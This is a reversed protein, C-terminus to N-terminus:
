EAAECTALAGAVAAKIQSKTSENWMGTARYVEEGRCDLIVMTPFSSIGLPRLLKTGRCDNLVPHNPNHQSIWSAYDSQRCDYSIDLVHVRENEAYFEAMEDVNPANYNCYPCRLFYGELIFVSTPYDKSNFREQGEGNMVELDFHQSAFLPSTALLMIATLITKM